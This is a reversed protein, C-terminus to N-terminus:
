GAMSESLPDWAYVLIPVLVLSVLGNGIFLPVVENWLVAGLGAGGIAGAIAVLSGAAAGVVGAIAGGAARRRLSGRTFRAIYLPALGAVVGAVGSELGPLIADGVAAGGILSSIVRGAFGVVFGTIPGFSYGFFPVLAFAPRLGVVPALPAVFLGLIGYLAAGIAGYAVVGTDLAWLRTRRVSVRAM